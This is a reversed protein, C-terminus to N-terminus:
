IKKFFESELDSDSDSDSLLQKLTNISKQKIEKDSSKIDSSRQKIEKDSSKIDSEISKKPRGRRKENSNKQKRSYEEIRISSSKSNDSNDKIIEDNELENKLKKQLNDSQKIFNNLEFTENITTNFISDNLSLLSNNNLIKIIPDVETHADTPSLNDDDRFSINTDLTIDIAKIKSPKLYIGIKSNSIWLMNIEFIIKLNVKNVLDNLETINIKKKNYEIKTNDLLTAKLYMYLQKSNNSESIEHTKISTSLNYTKSSNNLHNLAKSEINNILEIFDYTSKDEPTLFLYINQYATKKGKVQHDIIPQIFKFIPTQLYIPDSSSKNLKNYNIYCFKKNDNYNVESFEIDDINIENSYYPYSNM